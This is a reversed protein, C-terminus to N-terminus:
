TQPLRLGADPESNVVSVISTSPSRHSPDSMYNAFLKRWSSQSPVFHGGNHEEVRSNESVEILQRSREEVVLTDTKGLIHLTPTSYSPMLLELSFPDNLRFGSVSICFQLPAHPSKGDVLFEPYLHPRELLAAIVAAFAGGQSFGFVGDFRQTMLLGRIVLISAKLGEAKTRTENSRWWGRPATNPDAAEESVAELQLESDFRSSAGSLESPLLIHPADVFVFDINKCEKRIAGIRKSFITANQSYGHLALVKKKAM